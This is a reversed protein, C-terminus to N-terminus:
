LSESCCYFAVVTVSRGLYCGLDVIVIVMFEIM